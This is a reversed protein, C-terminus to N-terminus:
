AAQRTIREVLAETSEVNLPFFLDVRDLQEEIVDGLDRSTRMVNVFELAETIAAVDSPTLEIKM